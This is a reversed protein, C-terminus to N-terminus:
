RQPFNSYFQTRYTVTENGTDTSAASLQNSDTLGKFTFTDGAEVEVYQQVNAVAGPGYTYDDAMGGWVKVPKATNNVFVVESCEASSLRHVTTGKLWTAFSNCINVNTFRAM